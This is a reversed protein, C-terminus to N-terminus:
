YQPYRKSISPPIAMKVGRKIGARDQGVGPKYTSTRVETWTLTPKVAQIEPRIHPVLSRDMVHVEPLNVGSAKAQSRTQAM